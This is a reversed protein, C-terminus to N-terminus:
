MLVEDNTTGHNNIGSNNSCFEVSKEDDYYVKWYGKEYEINIPNKDQENIFKSYAKLPIDAENRYTRKYLYYEDNDGHKGIKGLSYKWLSKDKILAYKWDDEKYDYANIIEKLVQDTTQNSEKNLVDKLIAKFSNKLEGNLIKRFNDHEDNIKLGSEINVTGTFIAQFLITLNDNGSLYRSEGIQKKLFDLTEKNLLDDDLLCDIRGSFVWLSELNKLLEEIKEDDNIKKVKKIEEKLQKHNETEGNKALERLAKISIDSYVDKLNGNLMYVILEIFKLRIEFENLSPIENYYSLNSLVRLWQHFNNFDKEEVKQLYLCIGYMIVRDQFTASKVNGKDDYQPFFTYEKAKLLPLEFKLNPNAANDLVVILDNICSEDILSEYLEFSTYEKQENNYLIKYISDEKVDIKNGINVIYRNLLFRKIFTFFLDDISDKEGRKNWFLDTWAVDWKQLIYKGNGLTVFSKLKENKSLYGVLDAKFNEFSTLQEGRANMKVYLNDPQKIGLLNLHYFKIPCSDEFLIEFDKNFDEFIQEIGDKYPTEIKRTKKNLVQTGSLIRLISQVTPDQKWGSYFGTQNQIFDSLLITSKEYKQKKDKYEKSSKSTLFKNCLWVIFDKSSSRTEYTFNQLIRRYKEIDAETTQTMFVAYWMLVWLTTLRQQGDLPYIIDEKKTGYVFDLLLESDSSELSSKIENLFRKRLDEKGSRGQAYDRQFTPIVIKSEKLVKWLTTTTTIAEM